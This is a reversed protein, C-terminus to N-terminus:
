GPIAPQFDFIITDCQTKTFPIRLRTLPLKIFNWKGKEFVSFPCTSYSMDCDFTIVTTAVPKTDRRIRFVYFNQRCCTFANPRVETHFVCKQRQVRTFLYLRWLKQFLGQFFESFKVFAKRTFDFTRVIPPMSDTLECLQIALNSVLTFVPMPFEGCVQASPKIRNDGLREVKVAHFPKPSAFDGIKGEPLKNLYQPKLTISM